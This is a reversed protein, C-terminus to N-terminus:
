PKVAIRARMNVQATQPAGLAAIYGSPDHIV